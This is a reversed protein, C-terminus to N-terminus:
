FSVAGKPSAETDGDKAKGEHVGHFRGKAQASLKERVLGLWEPPFQADVIKTKAKRIKQAHDIAILEAEDAGFGEKFLTSYVDLAAGASQDYVKQLETNRQQLFAAPDAYLQQLRSGRKLALEGGMNRKFSNMLDRQSNTTLVGSTDFTTM